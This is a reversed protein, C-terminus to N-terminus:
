LDLVELPQCRVAGITHEQGVGVMHPGMQIPLYMKVRWAFVDSGEIHVVQDVLADNDIERVAGSVVIHIRGLLNFLSDLDLLAVDQNDVGAKMMISPILRCGIFDAVHDLMWTRVPLKGLPSLLLLQPPNGNVTPTSIM